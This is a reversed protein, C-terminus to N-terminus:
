VTMTVLFLCDSPSLGRRDEKALEVKLRCGNFNFNHRGRVADQADRDDRFTIFAYATSRSPAKLYIDWIKGYRYMHFMTNKKEAFM